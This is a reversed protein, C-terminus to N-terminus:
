VETPSFSVLSALAWLAPHVFGPWPHVFGERPHSSGKHALPQFPKLWSPPTSFVYALTSFVAPSPPGRPQSLPNFFGSRPTSFVQGLPFWPQRSLAAPHFSGECPSCGNTRFAVPTSCVVTSTVSVFPWPQFSRYLHTSFLFCFCSPRNFALHIFCRGLTSLAKERPRSHKRGCRALLLRARHFVLNALFCFLTFSAELLTSWAKEAPVVPTSFSSNLTPFIAWGPPYM